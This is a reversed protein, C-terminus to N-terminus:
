ILRPGEVVILISLLAKAKPHKTKIASVQTPSLNGTDWFINFNGNTPSSSSSTDYDIAFSLIFHFQVSPNIPVDSFKVNNFEAGIYERFLNTTPPASRAHTSTLLLFIFFFLKLTPFLM